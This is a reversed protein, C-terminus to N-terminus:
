IDATQAILEVCSKLSKQNHCFAVTIFHNVNCELVVNLKSVSDSANGLLVVSGVATRTSSPM